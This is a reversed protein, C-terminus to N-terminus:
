VTPNNHNGNDKKCSPFLTIVFIDDAIYQIYIKKLMIKKQIM